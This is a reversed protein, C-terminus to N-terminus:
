TASDIGYSKNTVTGDEAIDALSNDLYARLDSHSWHNAKAATIFKTPEESALTTLPASLLVMAACTFFRSLNGSLKKM